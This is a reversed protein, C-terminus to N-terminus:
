RLRWLVSVFFIERFTTALESRFGTQMFDSLNQIVESEGARVIYVKDINIHPPEGRPRWDGSRMVRGWPV